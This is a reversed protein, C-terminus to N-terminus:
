HSAHTTVQSLVIVIVSGAERVSVAVSSKFEPVLVKTKAFVKVVLEFEAQGIFDKEAM